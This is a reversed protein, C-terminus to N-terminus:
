SNIFYVKYYIFFYSIFLAIILFLLFLRGESYVFLLIFLDHCVILYSRTAKQKKKKMKSVVHKM